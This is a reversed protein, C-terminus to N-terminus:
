STAKFDKRLPYFDADEPLLLKRSDPSDDFIVGFFEATEREHWIAGPFIRGISPLRPNSRDVKARALIRASERYQNFLYMGEISNEMIRDVATVTELFFGHRLMTRAFDTIKDPEMDAIYYAGSRAYDAPSFNIEATLLEQEIQLLSNPIM